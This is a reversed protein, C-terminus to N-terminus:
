KTCDAIFARRKAGHLKKAKAQKKCDAQKAAAQQMAPSTPEETNKMKKEGTQETKTKQDPTTQAFAGGGVSAVTFMLALLSIAIRPMKEEELNTEKFWYEL